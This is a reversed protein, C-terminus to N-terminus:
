HVLHGGPWRTNWVPCLRPPLNSPAPTLTFACREIASAMMQLQLLSLLFSSSLGMAEGPYVLSVMTMPVLELPLPLLPSRLLNGSLAMSNPKNLGGASISPPMQLTIDRVHKLTATLPSVM